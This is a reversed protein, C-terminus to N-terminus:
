KRRRLILAALVVLIASPQGAGTACGMGGGRLAPNPDCPDGFGDDDVDHQAPDSVTPCVDCVDGLGDGDVDSQEPNSTVACVDCVDGVEDLDM